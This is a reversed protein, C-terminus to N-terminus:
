SVEEAFTVKLVKHPQNMAKFAALSDSILVERNIKIENTGSTVPITAQDIKVKLAFM